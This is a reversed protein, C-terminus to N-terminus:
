GADVLRARLHAASPRSLRRPSGGTPSAPGVSGSRASAPGANVPRASGSRAGGLGCGAVVTRAHAPAPGPHVTGRRVQGIEVRCVGAITVLDFKRHSAVRLIQGEVRVRGILDLREIAGLRRVLGLSTTLVLGNALESLCSCQTLCLAQILSIT